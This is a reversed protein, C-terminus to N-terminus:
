IKIEVRLLFIYILQLHSLGCLTGTVICVELEEGFGVGGVDAGCDEEELL